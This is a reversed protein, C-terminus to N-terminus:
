GLEWWRFGRGSRLPSIIWSFVTIVTLFSYAGILWRASVEAYRSATDAADRSRKQGTM